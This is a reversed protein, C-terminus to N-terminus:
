GNENYVCTDAKKQAWLYLTDNWKVLPASHNYRHINHHYVSIDIFAQSGPRIWGVDLAGREPTPANGVNKAVPTTTPKTALSSRQADVGREDVIARAEVENVIGNETGSPVRIVPTAAALTASLAVLVKPLLM